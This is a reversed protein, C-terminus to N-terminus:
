LAPVQSFGPAREPRWRLLGNRWGLRCTSRATLLGPAALDVCAGPHEKCGTQERWLWVLGTSGGQVGGGVKWQGEGERYSVGLLPSTVHWTFCLVGSAAHETWQAQADERATGARRAEVDGREWRPQKLSQSARNPHM